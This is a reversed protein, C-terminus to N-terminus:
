IKCLNLEKLYKSKVKEEPTPNLHALARALSQIAKQFFEDSKLAM